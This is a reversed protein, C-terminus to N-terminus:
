QSCESPSAERPARSHPPPRPPSRPLPAHMARTTRKTFFIAEPMALRGSLAQWNPSAPRPQTSAPRPQGLSASAPRPQTSAPAGRAQALSSRSCTPRIPRRRHAVTGRNLKSNEVIMPRERDEHLRPRHLRHRHRRANVRGDRLHTHLLPLTLSPPQPMPLRLLLVLLLM